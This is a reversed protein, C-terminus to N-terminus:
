PCVYSATPGQASVPGFVPDYTYTGSDYNVDCGGAGVSGSEHVTYAFAASSPILLGTVLGAIALARRM